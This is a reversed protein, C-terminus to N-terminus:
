LGRRRMRTAIREALGPIAELCASELFKARGVRHYAGLNEHVFIAYGSAPGGFALRVGYRSGERIESVYGSARLTGTLVPTRNKAETMILESEAVLAANLLGINEAALARLRRRLAEIGKVEITLSM